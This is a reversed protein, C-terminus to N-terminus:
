RSEDPTQQYQVPAPSQTIGVLPASQWHDIAWRLIEDRACSRLDAPPSQRLWELANILSLEPPHDSVSPSHNQKSLKQGGPATAVPLHSYQPHPLHLASQLLYQRATSDILDIGRLVHTVGQDHDDVVVALQYSWLRDRRKIVFDGIDQLCHYTHAPQLGDELTLVDPPCLFRYACESNVAPSCVGQHLRGNLERRSCACPFAKGERILQELAADYLHSRQSQYVVESDWHLGFDDLTRLISDAATPDERPPDLDEIRVLWQGGAARADLFGALASVLSGFHLPGTPSPAFRGTYQTM